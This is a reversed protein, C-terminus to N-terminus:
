AARDLLRNNEVKFDQIKEQAVKLEQRLCEAEDKLKFEAHQLSDFKRELSVLDKEKQELNAYVKEFASMRNMLRENEREQNALKEQSVQLDASLSINRANISDYELRLKSLEDKLKLEGKEAM